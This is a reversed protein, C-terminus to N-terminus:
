LLSRIQRAVAVVAPSADITPVLLTKPVVFRHGTGAPVDALSFYYNNVGDVIKAPGTRKRGLKKAGNALLTNWLRDFEAHSVNRRPPASPSSTLIRVPGDPLVDALTIVVAGSGRGYVHTLIRGAPAAQAAVACFGFEVIAALICIRTM